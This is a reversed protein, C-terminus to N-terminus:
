SRVAPSRSRSSTAAWTSSRRRSPRRRRAARRSASRRTCTRPSRSRSRTSRRATSTRSCMRAACASSRARRSRLRPQGPRRRDVPRGDALDAEPQPRLDPEPPAQATPAPSRPRRCRARRRRRLGGVRPGEGPHLVHGRVAPVEGGSRAAPLPRPPRVPGPRQGRDALHVPQRDVQRGATRGRHRGPRGPTSASRAPESTGAMPWTLRRLARWSRLASMTTGVPTTRSPGPRTTRGALVLREAGPM